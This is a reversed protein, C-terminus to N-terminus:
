RFMFQYGSDTVSGSFRSTVRPPSSVVASGALTPSNCTRSSAGTTTGASDPTLAHLFVKWQGLALSFCRDSNVGPRPLEGCLTTVLQQTWLCIPGSRAYLVEQNNEQIGDQQSDMRNSRQLEEIRFRSRHKDSRSCIESYDMNESLHLLEMGRVGSIGSNTFAGGGAQSVATSDDMLVQVHRPNM